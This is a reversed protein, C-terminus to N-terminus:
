NLTGFKNMQLKKKQIGPNYGHVVQLFDLLQSKLIQTGGKKKFFFHHVLKVYSLAKGPKQGGNNESM